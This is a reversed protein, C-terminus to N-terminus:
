RKSYLKKLYGQLATRQEATLRGFTVGIRFGGSGDPIHECSSAWGDFSLTLGGGDSIEVTVPEDKKVERDAIVGVGGEGIDRLVAKVQKPTRCTVHLLTYVRPYARPATGPGLMARDLLDNLEKQKEANMHTFHLGMGVAKQTKGSGAVVIRVIEATMNVPRIGAAISLKLKLTTGVTGPPAATYLFIGTLSVDRVAMQVDAAGIAVSAHLPVAIRAAARRDSKM